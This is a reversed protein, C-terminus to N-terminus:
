PLSIRYLNRQTNLRWFAYNSANPGPFVNPLDLVRVGPMHPLKANTVLESRSAPFADGSNLPIVITEPKDDAGTHALCIYM